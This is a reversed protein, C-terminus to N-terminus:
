PGLPNAIYQGGTYLDISGLRGAQYLQGIEWDTYGGVGALGRQAAGMIQSYASDGSLGELSLTFRTSPNSLGAQFTEQWAEDSLLTRGGVQVATDELGFNALGLVIHDTGVASAGGITGAALGETADAFLGSGLGMLGGAGMLILGPQPTIAGGGPAIGIQHGGSDCRFDGCIHSQPANPVYKGSQSAAVNGHFTPGTDWLGFDKGLEFIDAAFAFPAAYGLLTGLWGSTATVTISTSDGGYYVLCVACPYLGSRDTAGLPSGNVYAYRNLSQPDYVNYSGGYPDPSTWRGFTSSYQRFMAHDLGSESDRDLGAYLEEGPTPGCSVGDGYPLNTCTQEVVGEYDTQVRRSGTWDTLYFHLGNPDYTALLQGGVWVNTHSWAMNGNSDMAVETLQGGSPGLISDKMAQYGNAAPDCSGWTGISGTSVRTGDAGYIYGTMAGTTLNRVACMRGDGDYLYQNQNDATV